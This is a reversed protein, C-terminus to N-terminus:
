GCRLHLRRPACPTAMTTQLADTHQENKGKRHWGLEVALKDQLVKLLLSGQRFETVFLENQDFIPTAIAIEFGEPPFPYLWYVEGTQPNLGAINAGTWCVLVRKGAQTIVIPHRILPTITWHKGGSKM